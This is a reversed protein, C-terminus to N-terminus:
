VRKKNCIACYDYDPSDFSYATLVIPHTCREQLGELRKERQDHKWKCKPCALFETATIGGCDYVHRYLYYVDGKKFGRDCNICTRKLKRVAIKRKM